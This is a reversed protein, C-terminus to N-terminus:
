QLEGDPQQFTTKSTPISGLEEKTFVFSFYQNFEETMGELDNIVEGKSNVLPGPKIRSKLKSRAYAFFSKKDDQVNEAMKTEFNLMAARVEKKAAKAAAVYAPHDTRKCKAYVLGIHKKQVKEMAKYTMWMPKFTRKCKKLPIYRKECELLKDRFAQWAEEVSLPVLLNSWDIDSLEKRFGAIDAKNFDRQKNSTTPKVSQHPTAELNWTLWNHDSSAVPGLSQVDSVMHEEDTLVLDLVAQKRTACHVNQM